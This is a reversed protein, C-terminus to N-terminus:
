LMHMSNRIESLDLSLATKFQKRLDVILFVPLSLTDKTGLEAGQGERVAFHGCNGTDCFWVSM